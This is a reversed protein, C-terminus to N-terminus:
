DEIGLRTMKMALGNRTIGLLRAAASRNGKSERLAQEIAIREVDEVKEQLTGAPQPLAAEEPPSAPDIEKRRKEVIWRAPGVHEPQLVGGAPCVLAARRIESELERINGPWDHEVLVRLASRSIGRIQKKYQRAARELFAGVLAPVDEKRDRLPPLHFQLGRLRYFLDRRFAGEEVLDFLDRNSASIVRVRIKRPRSSGVALVEREQLVRLLKAQLRDTLEGIEDLLISGGDAQVFLGPRPDVGTAVRGQVGFLESELLESPIAACNIAVFPGGPDPGSAHILRALLEKGTGTEGLLLVDLESQVTAEIQALLRRMSDSEGVVMGEPIALGALRVVSEEEAAEDSHLVKEAVWAFFDQEWARAERGLIAIATRSNTRALLACGGEVEVESVTLSRKRAGSGSLLDDLQGDPPLEGAFREFGLEGDAAFHGVGLFSAKLIGRAQQLFQLRRMGSFHDGKREQERIFRLAASPGEAPKLDSAATEADRRPRPSAISIGLEVDSTSADEISVLAKGVQIAVGDELLVDSVKMGSHFLGNRSGADILRLKDGVPEVHAHVRSVGPVQLVFHNDSASGLTVSERPLPWRLIQDDFRAVLCRM